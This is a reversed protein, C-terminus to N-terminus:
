SCVGAAEAVIAQYAPSSFPNFGETCEATLSCLLRFQLPTPPLNIQEVSVKIKNSFNSVLEFFDRVLYDPCYGVNRHSETRLFLARQNVPNQLDHALFLKEGSRLNQIEQQSDVPMHRLGHAFFHIHYSGRDDLEPCSFVEFTDTRRKGGSRALLAIPDDQDKPINLWRVFDPYDPRSARLLRNAFLPFLEQSGYTECFEPFSPIPQFDSEEKADKAGQLYAFRFLKGDHSLKGIPFWKRSSPDQWALFLTKLFIGGM